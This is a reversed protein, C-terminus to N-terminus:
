KLPVTVQLFCGNGPSTIIEAHGDFLNVRNFINTLGLGKKVLTTDFGKGDDAIILKAETKVAQLNITISNAEAHRIINNIQEQIIRFLMLKLNDPIKDENFQDHEFEVRYPHLKKLLDCLDRISEVLGIDRLEPPALTQSLSRIVDIIYMLGKHTEAIMELVHGDTKDKLVELYLRTTTLHQSINDHLERSIESREREQGDITAQMLQKQKQQEQQKLQLALDRQETIDLFSCIVHKLWNGDELIPQANVQLWITREGTEVGIIRNKVVAKTRVAEAIPYEDQKLLKGNEDIIPNGAKFVSRGILVEEKVHFLELCTQNCLQILGEADCLIVGINLNQILHFFRERSEILAAEISRRYSDDCFYILMKGVDPNSFQNHGRVMCWLWEGSKQLLRIGIFKQKPAENLEDKFASVCLELDDAHVFDFSNKGILEEPQFGLIHVVSASAFSITGVENVLLMGDLSDAILARFFLESQKLQDTAKKKEINHQVYIGTWQLQKPQDNETPMLSVEWYILYDEIDPLHHQLEVPVTLRQRICTEIAAQYQKTYEPSITKSFSYSFSQLHQIGFKKKFFDNASLCFGDQTTIAQFFRHPSSHHASLEESSISTIM